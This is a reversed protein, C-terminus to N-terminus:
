AAPRHAWVSFIRPDGVLSHPEAILAAMDAHAAEAEATTALGASTISEMTAELTSLAVLKTDGGPDTDITQTMRMQPDPLGAALFCRYLKRAMDPDGGNHRLAQQYKEVYFRFGENPPDCFHGALDADMAILVGGPRVAEWMQTLVAVPEALHQLLFRSFVLDYAAPEHWDRISAERFTVNALGRAAAEDTALGVKVPDMDLGTASGDPGALRALAFTVDGSGCGLDLCRMGPRIGALRLVELTGPRHRRALMQLRQYGATGGRIVYREM